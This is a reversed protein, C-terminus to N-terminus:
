ERRDDAALNQGRIPQCSASRKDKSPWSAFSQFPIGMSTLQTSHSGRNNSAIKFGEERFCKKRKETLRLFLSLFISHIFLPMIPHLSTTLLSALSSDWPPLALRFHQCCRPDHFLSFPAIEGKEMALRPKAVHVNAEQQYKENKM